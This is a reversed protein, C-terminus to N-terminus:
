RGVHSTDKSEPCAEYYSYMKREIGYYKGLWIILKRDLPLEPLTVSISCTLLVQLNALM